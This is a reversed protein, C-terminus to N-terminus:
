SREGTKEAPPRPANAPRGELEKLHHELEKEERGIDFGQARAGEIIAICMMLLKVTGQTPEVDPHGYLEHKLRELISGYDRFCVVAPLEPLPGTHALSPAFAIGVETLGVESGDDYSLALYPNHTQKNQRQSVQTLSELKLPRTKSSFVDLLVQGPEDFFVASGPRQCYTRITQVQQARTGETM